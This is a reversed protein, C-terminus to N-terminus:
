PSARLVALAEAHLEPSAGCLVTSRTELDCRLNGIPEGEITTAVGGSEALLLLSASMDFVRVPLPACFVDFAGAGTLAISIAMSGLIRVKDAREILPRALELNRPTSELGLLQIRGALGRGMKTLPEGGRWAGQGRVAKWEEGTNLNLVFGALADSVLPGDLVSLMLGFVPVGQKANLSGDVPDVLVLPFEAGFSRHGVEESLVSFSEGKEALGGLERFVVEEAARDLEM